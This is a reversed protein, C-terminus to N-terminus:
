SARGEKARARAADNGGGERKTGQLAREARDEITDLLEGATNKLRLEETGIKASLYNFALVAPIAVTLGLATEVLAEAIGASVAGIGGLDSSCV